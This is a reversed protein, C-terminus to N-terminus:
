PSVNGFFGFWNPANRVLRAEKWAGALKNVIGNNSTSGAGGNISVGTGILSHTGTSNNSNLMVAWGSGLGTPLTLALSTNTGILFYKGRDAETFTYNATLSIPDIDSGPKGALTEFQVGNWAVVVYGDGGMVPITTTPVFNRQYDQVFASAPVTSTLTITGLATGYRKIWVPKSVVAKTIDLVLTVNSSNDVQVLDYKGVDITTSTANGVYLTAHGAQNFDPLYMTTTQARLGPLAFLTLILVFLHKKM